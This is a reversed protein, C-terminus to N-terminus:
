KDGGITEAGGAPYTRKGCYCRGVGHPLPGDDGYYAHDGSACYDEVTPEWRMQCSCPMDGLDSYDMDGCSPCRSPM